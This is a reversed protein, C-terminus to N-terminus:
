LIEIESQLFVDNRLILMCVDMYFIRETQDPYVKMVLKSESSTNFPMQVCSACHLM